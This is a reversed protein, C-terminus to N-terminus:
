ITLLWKYKDRCIFIDMADSAAITVGTVSSVRNSDRPPAAASYGSRWSVATTGNAAPEDL